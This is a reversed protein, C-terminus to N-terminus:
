PTHTLHAVIPRHDSGSQDYEDLVRVDDVAWDTTAMVHDIPAGTIAPLGSPWTGVAADGSQLAADTCRGLTAGDTSALGAMSDLTANFDGAMIVSGSQCQQALWALDDRWNQMQGSIPAVAHAAIITPGAGDDPQLIVTPLVNTNQERETDSTVMSYDGLEPNVLVTTSRAPSIRDFATTHVWMPRGLSRMTEAIAIGAEETTEPLSIIDAEVDVALEAIAQAGPADGLTNWSLVTVSDESRADLPGSGLGRNALVAGNAVSFALLLGALIAAFVRIPKIASLAFLVIAAVLTGGLLLGRMAVAQAVIWTTQLGFLQPWTVILLAGALALGVLAGLIKLM